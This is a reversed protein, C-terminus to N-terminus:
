QRQLLCTVRFGLGRHGFNRDSRDTQTRRPTLTNTAVHPIIRCATTLRQVVRAVQLNTTGGAAEEATQLAGDHLTCSPELAPQPPVTFQNPAVM